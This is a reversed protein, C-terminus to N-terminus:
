VVTLLFPHPPTGGRCAVPAEGFGVESSTDEKTRRSHCGSIVLNRYIQNELKGQVWLLQIIHVEHKRDWRNVVVVPGSDGVEVKAVTTLHSREPLHPRM